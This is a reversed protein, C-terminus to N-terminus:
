CCNLQVSSGNPLRISRPWRMEHQRDDISYTGCRLTTMKHSQIVNLITSRRWASLSTRRLIELDVAAQNIPSSREKAEPMHPRLEQLGRRHGPSTNRFDLWTKSIKHSKSDQKLRVFGISVMHKLHLQENQQLQEQCDNRFSPGFQITRQPHIESCVSLPSNRSSTCRLHAVLQLSLLSWLSQVSLSIYHKGNSQFQNWHKVSLARSGCLQSIHSKRAMLRLPPLPSIAGVRQVPLEALVVERVMNSGPTWPVRGRPM